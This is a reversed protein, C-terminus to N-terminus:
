EQEMWEKSDEILTQIASDLATGVCLEGVNYGEWQVIACEECATKDWEFWYGSADRLKVKGFSTGGCQNADYVTNDFVITASPYQVGGILELQGYVTGHIEFSSSGERMWLNEDDLWFSGRLNMDFGGDRSALAMQGLGGITRITGDSHIADFSGWVSSFVGGNGFQDEEQVALASFTAFGFFRNGSSTVCDDVWHGDVSSFQENLNPCDDDGWETITEIYHNGVQFMSPLGSAFGMNVNSELDYLATQFRRVDINTPSNEQACALWILIM